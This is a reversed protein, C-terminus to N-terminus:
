KGMGMRERKRRGGERCQMTEEEKLSKKRARLRMKDKDMM